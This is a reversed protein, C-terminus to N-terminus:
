QSVRARRAMIEAPAKDCANMLRALAAVVPKDAVYGEAAIDGRERAAECWLAYRLDIPTRRGRGRLTRVARLCVRRLLVTHSCADAAAFRLDSNSRALSTQPRKADAASPGCFQDRGRVAREGARPALQRGLLM